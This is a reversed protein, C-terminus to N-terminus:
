DAEFSKVYLERGKELCLSGINCKPCVPPQKRGTLSADCKDCRYVAQVPEIILETGSLTGDEVAVEFCGRLTQEEVCALEGVCMTISNIKTVGLRKAEEEVISITSLVLSAEHM